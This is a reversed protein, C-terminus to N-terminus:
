RLTGENKHYEDAIIERVKRGSEWALCEQSPEYLCFHHGSPDLFRITAGVTDYHLQTQFSIGRAIMADRIAEIKPTYFVISYTERRQRFATASGPQMHLILNINGTSFTASNEDQELVELGLVEKYFFLSPQLETLWLHLAQIEPTDQHGTGDGAIKPSRLLYLHNDRDAFPAGPKIPAAYGHLALQAYIEAERSTSFDMLMGEFGVSDFHNGSTLNLALVINGADYKCLGLNPHPPRSRQELLELGLIEELFIRQRQLDTIYLFLYLIKADKLNM